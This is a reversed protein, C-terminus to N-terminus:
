LYHGLESCSLYVQKVHVFTYVPIYVGAELPLGKLQRLWHNPISQLDPMSTEQHYSRAEREGQPVTVLSYMVCVLDVSSSPIQNDGLDREYMCMCFLWAFKTTGLDQSVPEPM